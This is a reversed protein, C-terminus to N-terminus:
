QVLEPRTSVAIANKQRPNAATVGLAERIAAVARHTQQKITGQSRRRKRATEAVSLGLEHRDQFVERM